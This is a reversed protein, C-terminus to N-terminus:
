KQPEGTGDCDPCGVEDSLEDSWILGTNNCSLCEKVETTSTM